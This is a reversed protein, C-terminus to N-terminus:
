KCVRHEAKQYILISSSKITDAENLGLQVFNCMKSTHELRTWHKRNLGPGLKHHLVQFPSESMNDEAKGVLMLSPRVITGRVFM